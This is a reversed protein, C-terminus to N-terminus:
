HSGSSDMISWPRKYRTGKEGAVTSIAELPIDNTGVSVGLDLNSLDTDEPVDKGKITWTVGEGMDLELTVDKGAMIEFVEAPVESTGNMEVSVANGESPTKM